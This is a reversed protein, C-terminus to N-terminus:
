PHPPAEHDSHGAPELQFTSHEVDFHGSLCDQLEDLIQPAHGDTFCGDEIVVHTSLTPLDSGVTWAHLDHVDVVHTARMLHARVDALDVAEPAAELLIRGSAHLLGWSAWAMLAVVLLSAIPDARDFGTLMIVVGAAATGVFAYLDTVIHAFAGAINLRDRHAGALVWTAVLNVAVGALATALIATGGAAVPNVLRRIAEVAVLAAVVLLTVGNAAASLIEARVFGFTWNGQAPRRSLRIAWISAALAAADTLMHGADALLALSSFLAAVVVEGVMFAVILGLAIGLRRLDASPAPRDGSADPPASTMSPPAHRHAHHGSVRAEL